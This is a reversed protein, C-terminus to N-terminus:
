HKGDGAGPLWANKAEAYVETITEVVTPRNAAIAENLADSLADPHEVRVGACGMNKALDSFRVDTFRWLEDSRGRRNGKYAAEYLQIEQNLANNNNVVLVLNIGHRAATELEALHYYVGGDGAFCVVPQDPLACKVGLAGPLGWGLSGACRIYRQGPRTLDVMVGSWMGSHGTDSVLVANEPLAQTIARCVREPRMPVMNSSLLPEEHRRWEAVLERVRQRWPELVPAPVGSGVRDLLVALAVKADALIPTTDPYNRGIESPEIDLHIIRTGAAPLNWRTTVQGGTQSGIFFVLDAEAIAKNACTRSYTGAVGLALPHNEAIAGKANLSTAVPMGLREALRVLEQHAASTRVGGGALIIPRKASLLVRLAEEIEAPDPQPRYAPASKFREEVVVPLSADANMFDDATVGPLRLHVPGPAGTTAVRFAQRVLDPLRTVDDVIANFKTVADFQTFDEIEQYYNRYRSAASPGGTIAIVPARAMRADRLGSALNSAGINQAFCLGPKGSARAYGDAMYAAAKESHALIRKIPLDEMEALTTLLVAPVYFVHDVDYGHLVQALHRAGTMVIDKNSQRLPANM